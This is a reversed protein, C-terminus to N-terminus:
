RDPVPGHFGIAIPEIEGQLYGLKAFRAYVSEILM